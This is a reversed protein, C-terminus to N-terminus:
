ACYKETKLKNIKKSIRRMELEFGIVSDNERWKSKVQVFCITYRVLKIVSYMVVFDIVLGAYLLRDLEYKIKVLILGM